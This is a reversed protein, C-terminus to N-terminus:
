RLFADRFGWSRVFALVEAVQSPRTYRNTSVQYYRVGNSRLPRVEAPIGALNLRLFLDQAERNTRYTAVQISRPTTYSASTCNSRAIKSQTSESRGLARLGRAVCGTHRLVAEKVAEDTLDAAAGYTIVVDSTRGYIWNINARVGEIRVDLSRAEGSFAQEVPAEAMAQTGLALFASAMLTMQYRM